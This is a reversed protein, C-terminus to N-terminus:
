FHCPLSVTARFIGNCHCLPNSTKCIKAPSLLHISINQSRYCLAYESVSDVRSICPGQEKIYFLLDSLFRCFLFSICRTILNLHLLHLLSNALIRLIERRRVSTMAVHNSVPQRTPNLATPETECATGKLRFYLCNLFFM